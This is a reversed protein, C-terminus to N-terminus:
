KTTGVVPNKFMCICAIVRFKRQVKTGPWPLYSAAFGEVFDFFRQQMAPTDDMLRKLNDVQLPPQLIQGHAHKGGRGSSEYKMYAALIPGFLCNPNTQRKSDMPWGMYIAAFASFVAHIADACAVPNAAVTRLCEVSSSRGVPNGFSDFTYAGKSDASLKFTWHLNVETPNLNIMCTFPGFVTSVALVRSRLTMMAQPSGMVRGGARKMGNLLTKAPQSLTSWNKNRSGPKSVTKLVKQMDEQSLNVISSAMRPTLKLQVWAHTNVKHRQIINWMDVLLGLNCAYQRRPRRQLIVRAWHELSMGEPCQGKGHPFASPHAYILWM